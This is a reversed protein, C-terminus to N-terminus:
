GNGTPRRVKTAENPKYSQCRAATLGYASKLYVKLRLLMSFAAAASCTKRLHMM